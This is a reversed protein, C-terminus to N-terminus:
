RYSRQKSSYNIDIQINKVQEVVLLGLKILHPNNHITGIKKTLDEYIKMSDRSFGVHITRIKHISLQFM